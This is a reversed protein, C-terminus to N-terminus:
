ISINEINNEETPETNNQQVVNVTKPNTQKNQDTKGRNRCENSWHFRNKFGINECIRCPNPPKRKAQVQKGENVSRPKESGHASRNMFRKLNSEASQAINYFETLSKPKVAVFSEAMKPHLNHILLPIMQEVTLKALNGFRRKREFYDKIGAKIDYRILVFEVIPEITEVGFRNILKTRVDTYNDSSNEIFWNLADDELYNGLMVIKDKESWTLHTAIMEYRKLWNEISIKDGLGKFVQLKPKCKNRNLTLVDETDTSDSDLEINNNANNNVSQTNDDGTPHVDSNVEEQALRTSRRNKTRNKAM